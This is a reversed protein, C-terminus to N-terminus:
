NQLMKLLLNTKLEIDATAADVSITAGSIADINKGVVLETAGTYNRFQKLWNTATVEQGHTAQYNYIKVQQITGLRDFLIFYDFFESDGEPYSDHSDISCGGARCTTVRGVYVYKITSLASLQEIAFFKGLRIQQSILTPLTMEQLKVEMAFAKKLETQLAKPFFNVSTQGLLSAHFGILMVLVLFKNKM